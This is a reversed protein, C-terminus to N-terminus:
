QPTRETPQTRGIPQTRGVTWPDTRLTSVRVEVSGGLAAAPHRGGPRVLAVGVGLARRRRAGADGSGDPRGAPAGVGSPAAPGRDRLRRRGGRGGRGAGLRGSGRVRRGAPGAPGPRGRRARGVGDRAPRRRRPRHVRAPAGARPAHRDPRARADVPPRCSSSTSRPNRTPTPPRAPGRRRRARRGRPLVMELKTEAVRELKGVEGITPHAGPLPMFQGTGATAFSCHSYDGIAGAGAAALADHVATIAPGVPIFTVIKDLPAEPAPELPGEVVLGSRRPSPTPSAPTPPTRTPTRPSCARRRGPRAPAGARGEAHGRRRRAGGAAAAPPAHAAAAAGGDLAEDVTAPVPDVAVLVSSVQRRPRRLRARRRGLGPRARAPLGGRARRDRRRAPRDHPRVGGAGGDPRPGAAAGTRRAPRRRPRPGRGPGPLHRRAPGGCRRGAARRPGARRQGDPLRLLLYPAVGPLVTVGSGGRAGGGARRPPPRARRGGPPGRRRGGTRLLGRGGRARPTSVPWTRGRVPSGPSCRRPASPTAPACAPWAGLDQDPQPAGAPRPRGRRGAVGTRRARRRRVGRRRPRVRGPRALARLRAGPAPRRDPQDPQRRRRPGRGGPGRRPAAPPRGGADTLVRVVPM